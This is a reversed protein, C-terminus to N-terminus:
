AARVAAFQEEIRKQYADLNIKSLPYTGWQCGSKEKSLYAGLPYDSASPGFVTLMKMGRAHVLKLLDVFLDPSGKGFGDRFWQVHLRAIGDLVAVRRAEFNGPKNYEAKLLPSVNPEQPWALTWQTGMNSRDIGFEPAARHEQPAGEPAAAVAAGCMASFALTGLAARAAVRPVRRNV